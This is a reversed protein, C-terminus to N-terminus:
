RPLMFRFRGAAGVPPRELLASTDEARAEQPKQSGRVGEQEAICDYELPIVKAALM